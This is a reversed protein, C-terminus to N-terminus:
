HAAFYWCTTWLACVLLILLVSVRGRYPKGELWGRLKYALFVTVAGTAFTGLFAGGFAMGAVGPLARSLWVGVAIGVLCLIGSTLGCGLRTNKGPALINITFLIAPLFLVLYPWPIPVQLQADEFALVELILRGGRETVTKPKKCERAIRIRRKKHRDARRRSTRTIPWM